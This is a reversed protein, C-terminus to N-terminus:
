CNKTYWCRNMSNMVSKKFLMLLQLLTKIKWLFLGHTNLLLIFLVYYFFVFLRIGKNSKSILQIYVIDAVWINNISFSHLKRKNFKKIIPKHLEEALEKNSMNENKIARGSTKKDLFKHVMAAIGRQYRDYKPNNAIGFVKDFLVKNSATRKTM